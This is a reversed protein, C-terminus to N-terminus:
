SELSHGFFAERGFVARGVLHHHVVALAGLDLKSSFGVHLTDEEGHTPLHRNVVNSEEDGVLILNQLNVEGNWDGCGVLLKTRQNSFEDGPRIVPDHDSMEVEIDILAFETVVYPM